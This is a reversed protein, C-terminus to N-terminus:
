ASGLGAPSSVAKTSAICTMLSSNSAYPQRRICAAGRWPPPEYIMLLDLAQHPLVPEIWRQSTAEHRRSVAVVILRDKRVPRAFRRGAGRAAPREGACGRWGPAPAPRTSGYRCQPNAQLKARKQEFAPSVYRLFLLGLAVNKYEGPDMVGRMKDAATWLTREVQM